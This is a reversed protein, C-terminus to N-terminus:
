KYVTGGPVNFFQELTLINDMHMEIALATGVYRFHWAEARYGTIGELDATYRQIFGYKYANAIIWKGGPTTGFCDSINCGDSGLDMAWGTQHESYGPRASESDAVAQGYAQVESNYAAVQSAYSRYGSEPAVTYGVAKAAALMAALAQAAETRMFQNDGVSVLDSPAYNIPQLPHQKNVIVWISSPNTASHATKDFSAITSSAASNTANKSSTSPSAKPALAKSGVVIIAVLLLGVIVYAYVKKVIEVIGYEPVCRISKM